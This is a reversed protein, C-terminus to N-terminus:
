NAYDLLGLPPGEVWGASVARGEPTTVVVHGSVGYFPVKALLRGHSFTFTAPTKGITVKSADAVTGNRRLVEPGTSKSETSRM